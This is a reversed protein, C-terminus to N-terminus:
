FEEGELEKPYSSVVTRTVKTEGYDTQRLIAYRLSKEEMKKVIFEEMKKNCSMFMPVM